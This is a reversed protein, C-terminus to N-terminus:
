SFLRLVDNYTLFVFFAILLFAFPILLKELTKPSLKHGTVMEILSMLITGGDLVPIPLLNLFGLNLSIAGLWYLAEKLSGVSSDHVIQVIGIPGAMWKPNLSGSLLGMLTRQIEKLVSWFLELPSPNFNIHRDETLPLGILLRRQQQELSKLQQQRVEPDEIASAQKKQETIDAAVQAQKDPSLNFEAIARPTVPPLLIFDGKDNIQTHTGLGQAIQKLDDWAIEGDFQKDQDNLQVLTSLKPNRQVIINVRYTQIRSLLEYAHQIPTGDVAIIKDGVQLPADITSYLQSPFVEKEKDKDIFKLPEEVVASNTINYPITYLNQLKTSNLKAAYQWDILEERFASDAKLEQVLVRPVRVLLTKNDRVVTVLADTKSLLHNLQSLSYIVEGDVWVIRDGYQIGSEALPSGQPLPNDLGNALRNYFIYSAPQTIGATKIGKSLVNPHQYLKASYEFPVKEQTEPNVKFGHVVIKDDATLLSYIHDRADHYPTEGYATIEDGPRVGQVYLESSPDIWGIKKTYEGFNKQRGGMGWLLTFALLAFLLNTLPGMFAVKIRDWPSKGFFGDPVSYPDEDKSLDAGAIKVYGGFLLWCIQWKVGDHEWSVIPKGFGISFTEVRMGVRRAMFYHGLEHIFILFSLGLISLLVYFLSTVM